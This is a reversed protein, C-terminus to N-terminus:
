YEVRWIRCQRMEVDTQIEMSNVGTNLQKRDFVAKLYLIVYSKYCQFNQPEHSDTFLLIQNIIPRYIFILLVIM